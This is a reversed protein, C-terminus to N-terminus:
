MGVPFYWGNTFIQRQNTAGAGYQTEIKQAADTIVKFCASSYEAAVSISAVTHGTNGTQGNTRWTLTTGADVYICRVAIEAAIAIPPITLDTDVWGSGSDLVGTEDTVQDAYLVFDGNHFFEILASAGTTQIAFICRDTTQTNGTGDGYWGRKTSSWVPTVTSNLFCGATLVNSSQGAIVSNDLYVYHWESVGLAESSTNSGGPGFKFTLQSAWYVIQSVTGIHFYEGAGIYIEDTDKFIFHARETSVPSYLRNLATLLQHHDDTAALKLTIAAQEIIYAIEEQIANLWDAGIPTRNPPTEGFLGGENPTKEIRHM